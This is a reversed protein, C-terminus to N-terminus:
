VLVLELKRVAGHDGVFFKTMVLLSFPKWQEKLQTSTLRGVCRTACMSDFDSGKVSQREHFVAFEVERCSQARVLLVHAGDGGGCGGGSRRCWVCLECLIVGVEGSRPVVEGYEPAM